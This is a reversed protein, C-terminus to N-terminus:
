GSAKGNGGTPSLCGSSVGSPCCSWSVELPDDVQVASSAPLDFKLPTLDVHVHEVWLLRMALRRLGRPNMLIRGYVVLKEM